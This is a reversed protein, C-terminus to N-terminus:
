EGTTGKVIMKLDSVTLPKVFYGMVNKFGRALIKDEIDDSSSHMYVPINFNLLELRRLFGWGNMVPMNIDLIIASARFSKNSILEVVELPKSFTSVPTNPFHTKMLTKFIFLSIEDDDILVLPKGPNEKKDVM